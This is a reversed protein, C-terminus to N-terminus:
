RNPCNTEANLHLRQGQVTLDQVSPAVLEFNGALLAARVGPCTANSLEGLYSWGQAGDAFVAVRQSSEPVLIIEPAGDGNVDVFMADCPIQRSLLCSPLLYFRTMENWDVDLFAQPIARDAPRVLRINNARDAATMSALSRRTPYRSTKALWDASKTAATSGPEQESLRRLADTGFRGAEFRLFAYDFRDPPTRGDKLRAVQDAVSVRAPDAIPTFLAALVALIIFATAINTREMGALRRPGRLTAVFYGGAYCATVIAAASAVIREPTWGYQRVRLSIAYGALLTLPVIATAAACMAIRLIAPLDRTDPSEDTARLGDQYAANILFILSASAFLLISAARRTAWLPELSTFPLAVVFGVALLTMLPLLWSLLTCSLTRVGRVIGVRVDTVHLAYTLALTTAPIWFWNKQITWYIAEIKILRFLESGLWLLAWFAGAFAVSLAAQVGFKWSVDFYTTYRAIWRRDAAGAVFLSHAVFLGASLALWMPPPPVANMAGSPGADRFVAYWAVGASIAAVALTWGGLQRPRVITCASVAVLPAFIAAALCAGFLARDTAPWVGRQLAEFLAYIIAGQLLGIIIRILGANAM